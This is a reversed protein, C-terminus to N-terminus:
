PLVEVVYKSPQEDVIFEIVLDIAIPFFPVDRVLPVNLGLTSM